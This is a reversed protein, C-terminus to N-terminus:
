CLVVIDVAAAVSSYVKLTPNEAFFVLGHDLKVSTGVFRNIWLLLRVDLNEVSNFNM